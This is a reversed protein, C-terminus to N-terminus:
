SESWGHQKWTVHSGVRTQCMCSPGFQLPGGMARVVFGKCVKTEYHHMTSEKGHHSGKPLDIDLM